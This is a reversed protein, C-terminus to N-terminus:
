NAILTQPEVYVIFEKKHKECENNECILTIELGKPTDEKTLYELNERCYPCSILKYVV